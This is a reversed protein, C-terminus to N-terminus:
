CEGARLLGLIADVRARYADRDLNSHWRGSSIPPAAATAVRLEGCARELQARGPGDGTLEIRGDAAVVALADFRVFVLDPVSPPELSAVQPPVRELTHGLEFSCWGVWFGPALGDLRDLAGSGNAWVVEAPAVGVVTADGRRVAAATSGAPLRAVLGSAVTDSLRM